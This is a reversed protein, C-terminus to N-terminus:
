ISDLPQVRIMGVPPAGEAHLLAKNSGQLELQFSAPPDHLTRPPHANKHSVKFTLVTGDFHPDLIPEPSGPTATWTGDASRRLMYFLVAGTLKADDREVTLTVAPLGELNGKWVGLLASQEAATSTFMLLALAVTLCKLIRVLIREPM